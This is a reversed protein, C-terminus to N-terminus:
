RRFAPAEPYARLVAQLCDQPLIVLMGPADFSLEVQGEAENSTGIRGDPAFSLGAIPWRLGRSEGAVPGMPFLSLRTGPALDLAIHPPAAFVVDEEGWLICRSAPHRVLANWVALTHDVRAGLFGIGLLFPARVRELCKEFDTSEQEAVRWHRDAPIRRLTAETVSDFDGIVLDPVLGAAVAMNAGGDAAVLRPAVALGARLHDPHAQGGGVLTVPETFNVIRDIM